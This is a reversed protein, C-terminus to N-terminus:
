RLWASARGDVRYGLRRLARQPLRARRRHRSTERSLALPGTTPESFKAYGSAANSDTVVTGPLDLVTIDVKLLCIGDAGHSKTTRYMMPNRGNFYLNAYDHLKRGGPPVKVASRLNQVDPDAVSVPQLPGAKSHSLIGHELVSVINPIPCIFHLESIDDREM